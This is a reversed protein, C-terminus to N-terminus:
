CTPLVGLQYTNELRVTLGSAEDRPSPEDVHSVTSVSSFAFSFVNTILMMETNVLRLIAKLSSAEM